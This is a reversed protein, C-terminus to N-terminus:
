DEGSGVDDTASGRWRYFLFTNIFRLKKYGLYYIEGQDVMEQAIMVAQKPCTAFGNAVMFSVVENAAFCQKWTKFMWVRDKILSHQKMEAESPFRGPRPPSNALLTLISKMANARDTADHAAPLALSPTSACTSVADSPVPPVPPRGLSIRSSLRASARPPKTAAAAVMAMTPPTSTADQEAVYNGPFLGEEKSRVKIGFWYGDDWKIMVQLEDGVSLSLEDEHQKEYAYLAVARCIKLARCMRSSLRASARPPKTAAAAVMAM